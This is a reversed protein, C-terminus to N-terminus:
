NSKIIAKSKINNEATKTEKKSSGPKSTASKM